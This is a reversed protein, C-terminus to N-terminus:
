ALKGHNRTGQTGKRQLSMDRFIKFLRLPSIVTGLPRQSQERQEMGSGGGVIFPGLAEHFYEPLPVM